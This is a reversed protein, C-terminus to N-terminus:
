TGWQPKGDRGRLRGQVLDASALRHCTRVDNLSRCGELEDLPCTGAMAINAENELYLRSAKLCEWNAGFARLSAPMGTIM